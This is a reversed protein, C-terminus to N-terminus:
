KGVAMLGLLFGAIMVIVLSWGLARWNILPRAAWAYADLARMAQQDRVYGSRTDPGTNM